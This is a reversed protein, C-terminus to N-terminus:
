CAVQQFEKELLRMLDENGEAQAIMWRRDLNRCINARHIQNIKPDTKSNKIALEVKSLSKESKQSFTVQDVAQGPNYGIGRYKLQSTPPPMPIHRPYQYTWENGRYKGSVEGPMIDLHSANKEYPHGRYRLEM